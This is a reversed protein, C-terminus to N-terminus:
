KRVFLRKEFDKRIATCPLFLDHMAIYVGPLADPNGALALKLNAYGDSIEGNALPTIAGTFVIPCPPQKIRMQTDQALDTMCDTGVTVVVRGFNSANSILSRELAMRDRLDLFKSDKNCIQFCNFGIEINNEEAIKRLERIALHQDGPTSNEPPPEDLAFPEADITGGMTLILAKM